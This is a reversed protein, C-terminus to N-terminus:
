LFEMLKEASIEKGLQQLHLCVNNALDEDALM